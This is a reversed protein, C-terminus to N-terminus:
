EAFSSSTIPVLCAARVAHHRQLIEGPGRLLWKRLVIRWDILNCAVAMSRIRVCSNRQPIRSSAEHTLNEFPGLTGSLPVSVTWPWCTLVHRLAAGLEHVKGGVSRDQPSPVEKALVGVVVDVWRWYCVYHM